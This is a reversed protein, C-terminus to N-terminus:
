RPPLLLHPEEGGPDGHGGRLVPPLHRGQALDQHRQRRRSRGGRRTARLADRGSPVRGRGHPGGCTPARRCASPAPKLERTDEDDTGGEHTLFSTWSFSVAPTM